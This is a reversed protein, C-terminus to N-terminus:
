VVWWRWQYHILNTEDEYLVSELTWGVPQSNLITQIDDATEDFESKTFYDILGTLQQEAKHNDTGFSNDEGTEYWVLFPPKATRRYHSVTCSLTLFPEYLDKLVAQMSKM